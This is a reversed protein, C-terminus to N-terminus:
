VYSFRCILLKDFYVTLHSWRDPVHNIEIENLYLKRRSGLPATATDHTMELIYQIKCSSLFEFKLQQFGNVNGTM